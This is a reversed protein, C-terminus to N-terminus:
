PARRVGQEISRCIDRFLVLISEDHNQAQKPMKGNLMRNQHTSEACNEEAGYPASAFKKVTLVNTWKSKAFIDRKLRAQGIWQEAIHRSGGV